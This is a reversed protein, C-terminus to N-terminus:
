CRTCYKFTPYTHKTAQTAGFQLRQLQISGIRPIIAMKEKQTLVGRTSAENNM